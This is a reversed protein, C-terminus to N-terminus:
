RLTRRRKWPFLCVSLFFFFELFIDWIGIQKIARVNIVRWKRLPSQPNEEEKKKGSTNKKTPLRHFSSSSSRRFVFCLRSLFFPLSFLFFSKMPKPHKKIVKNVTNRQVCKSHQGSVNAISTECMISSFFDNNETWNERTPGMYYTCWKNRKRLNDKRFTEFFACWDPHQTKSNNSGRWTKGKEGKWQSSFQDSFLSARKRNEVWAVEIYNGLPRAIFWKNIKVAIWKM